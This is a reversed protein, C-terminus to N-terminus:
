LILCVSISRSTQFLMLPRPAQKVLTTDFNKAALYNKLLMGLNSDDEALLVKINDM